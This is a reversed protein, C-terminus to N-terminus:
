EDAAEAGAVQAMQVREVVERRSLAERVSAPVRFIHRDDPWDMDLEHRALLARITSVRMLQNWKMEENWSRGQADECKEELRTIQKGLDECRGCLFLYSLFVLATIVLVAVSPAHLDM